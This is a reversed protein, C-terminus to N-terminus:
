AKRGGADPEIVALAQEILWRVYPERPVLDGKVADIRAVLEPTIRVPLAKAETTAYTGMRELSVAALAM